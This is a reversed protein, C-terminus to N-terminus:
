FPFETSVAPHKGHKEKFTKTTLKRKTPLTKPILMHHNRFVSLPGLHGLGSNASLMSVKRNLTAMQWKSVYPCLKLMLRCNKDRTNRLIGLLLFGLSGLIREFTCAKSSSRSSGHGKTSGCGPSTLGSGKPASYCASFFAM